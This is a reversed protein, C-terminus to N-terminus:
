SQARAAAIDRPTGDADRTVCINVWMANERHRRLIYTKDPGNPLEMDLLDAYAKSAARLRDMKERQEDTPLLYGFTSPHLTTM